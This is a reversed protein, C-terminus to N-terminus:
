DATFCDVVLMTIDDLREVAGEGWLATPWKSKIDATCHLLPPPLCWWYFGLRKSRKCNQEYKAEFFDGAFTDPPQISDYTKLWQSLVSSVASYKQWELKRLAIEHEWSVRRREQIKIFCFQSHWSSAVLSKREGWQWSNHVARICDWMRGCNPHCHCLSATVHKWENVGCASFACILM